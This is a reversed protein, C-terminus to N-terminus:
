RHEFWTTSNPTGSHVSNPLATFQSHSLVTLQANWSNPPLEGGGNPLSSTM